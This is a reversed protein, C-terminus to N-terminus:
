RLGNYSQLSRHHSQSRMTASSANSIRDSTAIPKLSIDESPSLNKISQLKQVIEESNEQSDIFLTQSKYSKNTQLAFHENPDVFQTSLIDVSVSRARKAKQAKQGKPEQQQPTPTRQQDHHNIEHSKEDDITGNSNSICNDSNTDITQTQKSVSKEVTSTTTTSTTEQTSEEDITDMVTITDSNMLVQNKINNCVLHVFYCLVLAVMVASWKYKTSKYIHTFQHQFQFLQFIFLTLLFLQSKSVQHKFLFTVTLNIWLYLLPITVFLQIFQKIFRIHGATTALQVLPLFLILESEILKNRKTAWTAFLVACFQNFITTYKRKRPKNQFSLFQQLLCVSHLIIQKQIIKLTYKQAIFFQTHLTNKSLFTLKIIHLLKSKACKVLYAQLLFQMLHLVIKERKTFLIKM